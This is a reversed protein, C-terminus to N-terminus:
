HKSNRKVSKKARKTSKKTRKASKKVRKTSKKTRKASKKARFRNKTWESDNREGDGGRFIFRPDDPSPYFVPEEEYEYNDNGSRSLYPDVYKKEEIEDVEDVRTLPTRTYRAAKLRRKNTEKARIFKQRAIAAAIVPSRSSM